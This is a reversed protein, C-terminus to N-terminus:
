HSIARLQQIRDEISSTWCTAERETAGSAKLGANMQEPSIRVLYPILWRVDDVSIGATLDQWHKGIFGWEVTTQRVGKVFHRSDEAFGSCDSKDRRQLGGWRGLSAGWDFVEYRLGWRDGDAERFVGNNSDVADRADKADWNSLLMMATKLGALEPTGRFPNDVWSWDRGKLYVLDPQGRLEFRAKTFTGDKKVMRRARRLDHVGIIKGTAVFYTPEAAYGLAQLFRPAFCEPIVEAGFKVSWTRGKADRVTVKPNTGSFEEHIFQFPPAPVRDCGGPGCVWDNLTMPNPALWLVKPLAEDASLADAPEAAFLATACLLLAATLLRMM